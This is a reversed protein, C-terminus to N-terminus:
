SGNSGSRKALRREIEKRIAEYDYGSRETILENARDLAPDEHQTDSTIAKLSTAIETAGVAAFADATEAMWLPFYSHLFTDIGNMDCDVEAESILFVLRQDPDLAAIGNREGLSIATTIFADADIGSSQEEKEM